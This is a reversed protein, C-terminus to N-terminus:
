RHGRLETWRRLSAMLAGTPQNRLRGLADELALGDSVALAAAFAVSRNNGANCHTLTPGHTRHFMAAITFWDPPVDDHDDVPIILVHLRWHYALRVNHAACVVAGFGVEDFDERPGTCLAAARGQDSQWLRGPVVEVLM